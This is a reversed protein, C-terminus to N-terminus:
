EIKNIIDTRAQQYEEQSILGRDFMANLNTLKEELSHSLGLRKAQKNADVVNLISFVLLVTFLSFVLINRSPVGATSLALVSIIALFINWGVSYQALMGGVFILVAIIGVFIAGGILLINVGDVPLEPLFTVLFARFLLLGLAELGLLLSAIISFILVITALKLRKKNQM